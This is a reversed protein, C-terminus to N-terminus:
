ATLLTPANLVPAGWLSMITSGYFGYMNRYRALAYENTYRDVNATPGLIVQLWERIQQIKHM